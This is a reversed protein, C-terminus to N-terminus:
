RAKWQYIYWTEVAVGSAAQVRIVIKEGEEYGAGIKGYVTSSCTKFDNGSGSMFSSEGNKDCLYSAYGSQKGSDDIRFVQAIIIGTGSFNKHDKSIFESTLHLSFEEDPKIINSSPPTWTVKGSQSMGNKVWSYPDDKGIFTDTFLVSGESVEFDKRWATTSANQKDLATQWDNTKTEVLVWAFEKKGDTQNETPKTEPPQEADQDEKELIITISDKALVTGFMDYLTVQPHYTGVSTYKHTITSEKGKTNELASGDGFDWEFRYDGLPMVMAEFTHEAETAGQALEYTIIRPPLISLSVPQLTVAASVAGLHNDGNYAIVKVPYIIEETDTKNEKPEYTYKLVTEVTGDLSVPVTVSGKSDLGNDGFDYELRVDKVDKSINKGQITFEYETNFQGDKVEEPDITWDGAEIKVAWIKASFDKSITLTNEAIKDEGTAKKLKITTTVRRDTTATNPALFYLIDGQEVEVEVPSSPKLLFTVYEMGSKGTEGRAKFILIGNPNAEDKELLLTVREEPISVTEVAEAVVSKSKPNEFDAITLNSNELMWIVFDAYLLTSDYQYGAKNIAYEVIASLPDNDIGKEAVFKTLDKADCKVQQVLFRLFIASLYEYDLDSGFSYTSPKMGTSNLPFNIFKSGIRTNLVTHERGWAIDNAAYDACAEMWWLHKGKKYDTFAGYWNRQIAHFLEHALIHTLFTESETYTSPDAIIPDLFSHKVIETPVNIQDWVSNFSFEGQEKFLNDFDINSAYLNWYSDIKVKIRRTFISGGFRNKTPDEFGKDIYAKLSKELITGIDQVIFPYSRNYGKSSSLSGYSMANKWDKDPLRQRVAKNSYLIRVNNDESIYVDNALWELAYSTAAVAAGAKGLGVLSVSKLSGVALFSLHNTLMHITHTDEDVRYYLDVWTKNEEDWRLAELYDEVAEDKEFWNPDYKMSIQIYEDLQTMGEISVDYVTMADLPSDKIVAPNDIKSITLTKEEKLFNEPLTVFVEDKEGITQMQSSPSITEKTVESWKEKLVDFHVKAKQSKNKVTIDDSKGSLPINFGIVKETVNTVSVPDSGYFVQMKENDFEQNLELLIFAGLSGEKPYYDKIAIKSSSQSILLWILGIIIICALSCFVIILPRKNAAKKRPIIESNAAFANGGCQNCFKIDDNVAQKCNLCQKM